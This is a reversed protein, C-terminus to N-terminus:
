DRPIFSHESWNETWKKNWILLKRNSFNIPVVLSTFQNSLTNIEELQFM